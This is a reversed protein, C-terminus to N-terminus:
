DLSKKIRRELSASTSVRTRSGSSGLGIALVISSGQSPLAISELSCLGIALITSSSYLGIALGRSSGCSEIALV